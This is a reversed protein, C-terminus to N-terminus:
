PRLGADDNALSVEGIFVNSHNKLEARPHIREVVADRSQGPFADLWIRVPIGPYMLRIEEEPIALEVVMQNLPAVEFLPQGVELPMGESRQLDGTVVIGDVPSVIQLNAMRHRLLEIQLNLRQMELEAIQAKGSEHTAMYGARERSVRHMDAEAAALEWQLERDDLRALVDNLSVIDGPKVFSKDLRGAFPAALYRRTVPQLECDCTVRWPLPILLLGGIVGGASLLTAGSRRRMVQRCGSFFRQLRNQQARMLLGVASALPRSAAAAFALAAIDQLTQTNGAMLWAGRVEGTEERLVVSVVAQANVSEAYQRHACLGHRDDSQLAPWTSVEGRAISEQLVAQARRVSESRNDVAVVGSVATVQCTPGNSRCLGAIVRDCEFHQQLQEVLIRCAQDPDTGSEVRSVLETLAAMRRSEAFSQRSRAEADWRAVNAAALLLITLATAPIELAPAFVAVLCDATRGPVPTAVVGAPPPGESFATVSRGAHAAERAARHCVALLAPDPNETGALHQLIPRGAIRQDEARQLALWAAQTRVAVLRAVDNWLQEGDGAHELVATLERQTESISAISALWSEAADPGWTRGPNQARSSQSFPSAASIVPPVSFDGGPDHAEAAMGIVGSSREEASGRNDAIM